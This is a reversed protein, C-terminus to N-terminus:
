RVSRSENLSNMRDGEFSKRERLAASPEHVRGRGRRRPGESLGDGLRSLYHYIVAIAAGFIWLSAFTTHMPRMKPLTAGAENMGPAFAPIYHAVAVFGALIAILFCSIALRLQVLILRDAAAHSTMM